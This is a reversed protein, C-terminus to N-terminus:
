VSEEWGASSIDIIESLAVARRGVKLKLEGGTLNSIGDVTGESYAYTGDGNEMGAFRLMYTGAEAYEGGTTEGNWALVAKGLGDTHIPLTRVVENESNLIEVTLSQNPSSQVNVMSVDGSGSRLISDQRMTVQKGLLSVANSPNLGHVGGSDGISVDMVESIPIEGGGIKVIAGTPTFRIGEVVDEVFAYLSPDEEQGVVSVSYNGSMAITGQDTTGDWQLAVSNQSDKDTANLTRVVEGEDNRIEVTAETANGLHVNLPVTNGAQASWRIEHQAMRVNRGILSVSSSNSVSQSMFHQADLSNKFSEDLQGVAKEINDNSELARFQALQAVFETNEMPSLPDQYKLQTVLLHLFDDKGLENDAESFLDTNRDGTVKSTSPDVMGGELSARATYPDKQPRFLSNVDTTLAM